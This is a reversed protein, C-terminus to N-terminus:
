LLGRRELYDEINSLYIIAEYYKDKPITVMEDYKTTLRKELLPFDNLKELEMLEVVSVKLIQLVLFISIYIIIKYIMEFKLVIMLVGIFIQLILCITSINKIIFDKFTKLYGCFLKILNKM